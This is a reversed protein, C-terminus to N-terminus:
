LEGKFARSQLSAHLDAEQAEALLMSQRMTLVEEVLRHFTNLDRGSPRPVLTDRLIRLNINRQASQPAVREMERQMLGLWAQVYTTVEPSATFAVVSDPFCADFGLRATDAINAAITICLTGAPWMRSQRLGAESYTSSFDTIVWRSRAVDGTQILPYPGGLLLPDNRPRHRSVGRELVGLEKLSILDSQRSNTRPDGFMDHFISQILADLHALVQRRKARIADAKDLIAAIRRQEEINPLPVEFTALVRPSLRPLNAGSTRSAAFAVMPPQSLYHALYGRDLHKSPTIPLIDTSCVGARDPRAIKGLNPRLKGFLVQRENFRFKTSTLEARGISSYERIPGGSEIHELGLYPTDRDLVTPDVGTREITAVEGLPVM